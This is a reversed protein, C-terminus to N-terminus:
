RKCPYAESLATAVASAADLQQLRPSASIIRFVAAEAEDSGRIGCARRGAVPQLLMADAIAMVYGHCTWASPHPIKQSCMNMIQQGNQFAAQASVHVIMSTFVTVALLITKM